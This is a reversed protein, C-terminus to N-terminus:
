SPYPGWAERSLVLLVPGMVLDGKTVPPWAKIGAKAFFLM